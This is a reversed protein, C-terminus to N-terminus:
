ETFDSGSKVVRTCGESDTSTKYFHDHGGLVLDIEPVQEALIVDNPMRMHTLAIVLDVNQTTKLLNALRRGEEVFSVYHFYDPMDAITHFWEQEALGIFGIKLGDRETIWYRAAEGVPVLDETRSDLVNSLIWPFRCQKALKILQTVGFDFDHNGYCSIDVGM